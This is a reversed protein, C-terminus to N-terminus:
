AAGEGQGREPASDTLGRIGRALQRDVIGVVATQERGAAHGLDKAKAVGIVRVHKATLLPVVKALSHKSADLALLALAVKGRRAADRVQEVGVVAGRSRVGLGVLRLVQKMVADDV